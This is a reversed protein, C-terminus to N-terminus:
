TGPEADTIVVLLGSELSEGVEDAIQAYEAQASDLLARLTRTGDILAVVRRWAAADGDVVFEISGDRLLYCIDPDHPDNLVMVGDAWGLVATDSPQVWGLVRRALDRGEEGDHVPAPWASLPAPAPIDIIPPPLQALMEELLGLNVLRVVLDVAELREGRGFGDILAHVAKDDLHEKAGPMSLASRVLTRQEQELLGVLMRRTHRVGNGHLFPVKERWAVHQPLVDRLGDRLIRKDWLLSARRHAPVAAVYEVLRHDLFPVRAEVGSGAASRDEHWVNYQYIKRYQGRIYRLYVDTDTTDAAAGRLVPAGVAATWESGTVDSRAMGRRLMTDLHGAFSSWDGGGAIDTSYGGNFEDSAAGLLMGKLQPRTQRAYRYLEHKFYAEAGTMPNEMLWLLRRWEDPSPVHDRPVYMQHHALGLRRAIQDAHYADGSEITAPSLITFTHLDTTRVALAAVAASDVGGSLFLGLEADAHACDAVSAALLRAYEAIIEEDSAEGIQADGPFDWYRHVSRAGSHLDIEVVTGPEVYEIGSFWSTPATDTILPAGQLATSTLAAQWDVMRPTAPDQFLAKIESGFVVRDANQHFYLPKIGFRDRALILRNAAVDYLVIAFMGNVARLFDRGHEQYLYGLVECDSGNPRAPFKPLGRALEAHNYVEGNAIVVVQRDETWIPQDGADPAILALRSFCFGVQPGVRLAVREDPGRHAVAVALAQLRLADRDTLGRGLAAIGAIGCM